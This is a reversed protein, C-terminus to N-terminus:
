EIYQGFKGVYGQLSYTTERKFIDDFAKGIMVRDAKEALKVEQKTKFHLAIKNEYAIKGIAIYHNISDSQFVAEAYKGAITIPTKIKSM